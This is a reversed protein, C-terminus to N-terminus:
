NVQAQREWFLYIRSTVPFETGMTLKEVHRLEWGERALKNMEREMAKPDNEGKLSQDVTVKCEKAM